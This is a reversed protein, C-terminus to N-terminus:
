MNVWPSRTIGRQISLEWILQYGKTPKRRRASFFISMKLLLKLLYMKCVSIFDNFMHICNFSQKEKLFTYSQLIPQSQKWISSFALSLDQLSATYGKSYYHLFVKCYSIEKNIFYSSSIYSSDCERIRYVQQKIFNSDLEKRRCKDFPQGMKVSEM